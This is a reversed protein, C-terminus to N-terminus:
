PANMESSGKNEIEWIEITSYGITPIRKILKGKKIAHLKVKKYFELRGNLKNNGISRGSTQTKTKTIIDSIIIYEVENSDLFADLNSYDRKSWRTYDSYFENNKLPFWLCLLSLVKKDDEICVDIEKEIKSYPTNNINRSLVFIDGAFNNLLYLISFFMMVNYSKGKLDNMVFALILFSFLMVEGFSRTYLRSYILIHILCMGFGLLSLLFVVRNKKYYFLGIVLLFFEFIFIYIRKIGLTYNNYFDIMIHLRTLLYAENSNVSSRTLWLNFFEVLSLHRFFIINIYLIIFVPITGLIYFVVPKISNENVSRYLFYLGFLIGFIGGDPHSLFALSTLVGTIYFHLIKSSNITRLLFYLSWIALMIVIGDPRVTRFVIYTVNSFIVFLLVLTIVSNRLKAFKMISYFGWITILGIIVPVIKTVLISTGLFKYFVGLVFTFFFLDDGGNSGVNTNIFGNGQSFNYAVNAYWTEDGWIRPFQTLGTLQVVIYLISLILILFTSSTYWLKNM